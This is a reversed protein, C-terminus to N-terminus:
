PTNNITHLDSRKRWEQIFSWDCQDDTLNADLRHDPAASERVLEVLRCACEFNEEFRVVFFGDSSMSGLTEKKYTADNIRPANRQGQGVPEIECYETEEEVEVQSVLNSEQTRERETHQIEEDRKREHNRIISDGFYIVVKNENQTIKDAPIGGATAKESRRRREQSLRRALEDYCAPRGGYYKKEPRAEDASARSRHPVGESCSHAAATPAGKLPVYKEDVDIANSVERKQFELLGRRVEEGVVNKDEAKKPRANGFFRMFPGRTSEIRDTSPARRVRRAAADSDVTPPCLRECSNSKQAVSRKEPPASPARNQWHRVSLRAAGRFFRLAGSAEWADAKRLIFNDCMSANPPKRADAARCSQLERCLFCDCRAPCLM